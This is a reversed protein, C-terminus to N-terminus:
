KFGCAFNQLTCVSQKILQPSKLSHVKKATPLIYDLDLEPWDARSM